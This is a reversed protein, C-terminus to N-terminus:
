NICITKEPIKMISVNLKHVLNRFGSIEPIRINVWVKLVFELTLQLKLSTIYMKLCFESGMFKPIGFIWSCQLFLNLVTYLKCSTVVIKHCM